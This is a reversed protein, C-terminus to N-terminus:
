LSHPYQFEINKFEVDALFAIYEGITLHGTIKGSTEEDFVLRKAVLGGERVRVDRFHTKQKLLEIGQEYREFVATFLSRSEIDYYVEWDEELMEIGPEYVEWDDRSKMIRHMKGHEGEEIWTKEGWSKRRIKNTKNSSEEIDKFLADLYNM